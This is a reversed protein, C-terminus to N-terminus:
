RDAKMARELQELTRRVTDESETRAVKPRLQLLASRLTARKHGTDASSALYGISYNRIPQGLDLRMTEEMIAVAQDFSSRTAKHLEIVAASEAMRNAYPTRETRPLHAVRTRLERYRGGLFLLDALLDDFLKRFSPELLNRDIASAIGVIEALPRNAGERTARVMTAQLAWAFRADATAEGSPLAGERFLPWADTAAWDGSRRPAQNRPTVRYLPDGIYILKWPIGIPEREM